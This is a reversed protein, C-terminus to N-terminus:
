RRGAPCSAATRPSSGPPARWRWRTSGTIPASAGTRTPLCCTSCARTSMPRPRRCAGAAKSPRIPGCCGGKATSCWPRTNWTGDTRCRASRRSALRDDGGLACGGRRARRGRSAIHVAIPRVEGGRGRAHRHRHPRLPRSPVHGGRLGAAARLARAVRRAGRLRRHLDGNDGDKRDFAASFRDDRFEANVPEAADEIWALAGTDGSSVLRPNDIEFGAPLYDAVIVRAFKPKPETIKLVVAFRQNQKM